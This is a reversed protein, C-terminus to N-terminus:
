RIGLDGEEYLLDYPGIPVEEKPPEPIEELPCFEERMTNNILQGSIPCVWGGWQTKLADKWVIQPDYVKLPCDCCTTPMKELNTRIIIM